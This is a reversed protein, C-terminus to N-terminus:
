FSSSYTGSMNVAAFVADLEEQTILVDSRYLTLIPLDFRWRPVSALSPKNLLEHYTKNEPNLFYETFTEQGYLNEGEELHGVRKFLRPSAGRYLLQQELAGFM